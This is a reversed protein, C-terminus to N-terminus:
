AHPHEKSHEASDTSGMPIGQCHNVLYDVHLLRTKIRGEFHYHSDAAAECMRLIAGPLMGSFELIDERFGSLDFGSLGHQRISFELLEKAKASPLAGVHLRLQDNWYLPAAHGLEMYTWGRAVAYVPTTQNWMLEKVIRALMHTMPALDELFIRYQGAGAAKYLLGRLRLSTQAKVWHSYSAGYGTDARFKLKFLPDDAFGLAITRLIELPSGSGTALVCWRADRQPLRAIAQSVLASKGSDAAGSLLLSKRERIAQELRALEAERGLFFPAASLAPSGIRSAIPGGNM